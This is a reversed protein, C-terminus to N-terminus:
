VPHADGGGLTGDAPSCARGGLMLVLMFLRPDFSDHVGSAPPVVALRAPELAQAAPNADLWSRNRRDSHEPGRKPREV